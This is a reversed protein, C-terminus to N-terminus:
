RTIVMRRMQKFAGTTLRYIYVGSAVQHGGVDRGDWLVRHGGVQQWTNVLTRIRQGVGNYVALEIHGAHSLNYSILTQANFPNPVNQSLNHSAPAEHDSAINTPIRTALATRYIEGNETGAYLYRV